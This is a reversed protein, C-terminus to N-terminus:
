RGLAVEEFQGGVEGVVRGREGWRIAFNRFLRLESYNVVM